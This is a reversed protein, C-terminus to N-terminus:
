GEGGEWGCDCGWVSSVWGWGGGGGGGVRGWGRGVREVIAWDEKAQISSGSSVAEGVEESKDGSLGKGGGRLEGVAM